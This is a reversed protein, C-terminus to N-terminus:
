KEGAALIGTINCFKGEANKPARKSCQIHVIYKEVKDSNILEKYAWGYYGNRYSVFCKLPVKQSTSGDPKTVWATVDRFQDSECYTIGISSAEIEFTMEAGAVNTEWGKRPKGHSVWESHVPSGETWGTNSIPKINGMHYYTSNEFGSDTLPKPLKKEVVPIENDQPLTEWVSNIKNIIFSAINAHGKTNPHVTETGDFFPEFSAKKDSEFLSDKWSVYPIQYYECIKQQEAQNSPYPANRENVFLALVATETNNMVKRIISEYTRQRVKPDLWQDNMAFELLLLDPNLSIVHDELRAIAIASDTGSVGQNAFTLKSNNEAALEKLWTGTLGAWGKTNAPSASFGTTISGGLAVVKVDEGRRIKALVNQLRIVDKENMSSDDKSYVSFVMSMMTILIILIKKM